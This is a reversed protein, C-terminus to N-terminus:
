MEGKALSRFEGLARHLRVSIVNVSLGLLSAIETPRLEDVYRMLLLDKTDSGLKDLLKLAITADLATVFQISSEDPPEFGEEMLADLSVTQKKKRLNIILNNAVTYLFSRYNQITGGKISFEWTKMFAEQMLEKGTERNSTRFYCHRFIADAYQEYARIFDATCQPPHPM